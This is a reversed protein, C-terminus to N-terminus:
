KVITVIFGEKEIVDTLNKLDTDSIKNKLVSTDFQVNKGGIVNIKFPTILVEYYKPLIKKLCEFFNDIQDRSIQCCGDENLPIQFHIIKKM